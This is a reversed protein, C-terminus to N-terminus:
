LSTSVPNAGYFLGVGCVSPNTVVFSGFLMLTVDAAPGDVSGTGSQVNIFDDSLLKYNADEHGNNDDTMPDPKGPENGAVGDDVKDTNTYTDFEVAGSDLIYFTGKPCYPDDIVNEIYNTSFSASFANFGINAERKSKTSTQTFYTNTTAIENAIDRWDSDNVIIMDAQSGQRRVQMLLAEVSEYKKATSSTEKYFAGALRDPAASRDVGFFPDEIYNTWTSGSRSAVTPLWGALGVPLLPTSGNQSGALCIVDTGAETTYTSTPTVTVTTGDIATVDLTNKISSAGGTVSTKVVLQSGVDIKMIADM